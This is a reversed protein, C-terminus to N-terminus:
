LVDRKEITRFLRRFRLLGSYVREQVQFSHSSAEEVIKIWSPWCNRCGRDYYVLPHEDANLTTIAELLM